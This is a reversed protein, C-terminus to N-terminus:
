DQMAVIEDFNEPPIQHLMLMQIAGVLIGVIPTPLKKYYALRETFDAGAPKAKLGLDLMAYTNLLAYEAVAKKYEPSERDEVEISESKKKTGELKITKRPVEPEPISDILEKLDSERPTTLSVKKRGKNTLIFVGAELPEVLLDWDSLVEENTEVENSM